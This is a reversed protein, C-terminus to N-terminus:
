LALTGDRVVTSENTGLKARDFRPQAQKGVQPARSVTPEPPTLAAPGVAEAASGARLLMRRDLMLMDTRRQKVRRTVGFILRRRQDCFRYKTIHNITFM